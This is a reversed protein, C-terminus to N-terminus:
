SLYKVIRNAADVLVIRNDATRMKRYKAPQQVVPTAHRQQPARRRPQQRQQPQQQAMGAQQEAQRLAAEERRSQLLEKAYARRAEIIQAKNYGQQAMQRVYARIANKDQPTLQVRPRPVRRQQAQPPQQAQAQQVPQAAPPAPQPAPQQPAPQAQEQMQPVNKGAARARGSAQRHWADFEAVSIILTSTAERAADKDSYEASRYNSMCHNCRYRYHLASGVRSFNAVKRGAGLALIEEWTITFPTYAACKTCDLSIEIGEDTAEWELPEEDPAVDEDFIPDNNAQAV